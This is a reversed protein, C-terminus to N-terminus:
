DYIFIFAVNLLLNDTIIAASFSQLSLLEFFYQLNISLCFFELDFL